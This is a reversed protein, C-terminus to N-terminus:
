RDSSRNRQSNQRDSNQEASTNTNYKSKLRKGEPRDLKVTQDNANIQEAICVTEGNLRGKRVLLRLEDGQQLDLQNLKQEPGLIVKQSKDGMTKITAMTFAQDQDRLRLSQMSSVTGRVRKLDRDKESKINVSQGDSSVKKACLVQRDNIRASKGQVQVQDGESLDLRKTQDVTGFHVPVMQGDSTEVKGMRHQKNDSLRVTKLNSLQGSISRMQQKDNQMNQRNAQMGNQGKSQKGNQGNSQGSNQRQNSRNRADVFDYYYITEYGDYLRDGDYDVAVTVWRLAPMQGSNSRQNQRRSAQQQSAQNQRSQSPNNAQRQRNEASQRRKGDNQKRDSAQKSGAQEHRWDSQEQQRDNGTDRSRDDQQQALLPVTLLCTLASAAGACLFKRTLLNRTVSM